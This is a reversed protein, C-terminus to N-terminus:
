SARLGNQPSLALRASVVRVVFFGFVSAFLRELHGDVLIFFTGIVVTMRGVFSSLALLAPCQSAPLRKVTLWLGGFYFIGMGIGVVLYVVLQLIYQSL